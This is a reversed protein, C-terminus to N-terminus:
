NGNKRVELLETCRPGYAWATTVMDCLNQEECTGDCGIKLAPDGLKVKLESYQLSVMLNLVEFSM